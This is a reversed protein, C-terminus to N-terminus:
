NGSTKSSGTLDILVESGPEVEFSSIVDETGDQENLGARNHVLSLTGGLAREVVIEDPIDGGDPNLIIFLSNNLSRKQPSVGIDKRLVFTSLSNQRMNLPLRIRVRSYPRLVLPKTPDFSNLNDFYWGAEGWATITGEKPPAPLFLIGVSNTKLNINPSMLSEEIIADPEFRLARSRGPSQVQVYTDAAPKGDPGNVQIEMGKDHKLKTLHYNRQLRADVNSTVSEELPQYGDALIQLTMKDFGYNSSFTLVGDKSRDGFIRWAPITAPRSRLFTLEAELHGSVSREYRRKVFFDSIREGTEADVATCSFELTPYLTIEATASTQTDLIEWATRFGRHMAALLLTGSPANPWVVEGKDNTKESFRIAGSKNWSGLTITADAVPNGMHDTTRITVNKPPLLQIINKKDMSSANALTGAQGANDIAAVSIFRRPSGAHEFKGQADTVVVIRPPQAIDSEIFASVKAGAVPKSDPGLVVGRIKFADQLVIPLERQESVEIQQYLYGYKTLNLVSVRPTRWEFYGDENTTTESNVRDQESLESQWRGPYIRVGSIPNGRVDKVYGSLLVTDQTTKATPQAESAMLTETISSPLFAGCFAALSGIVAAFVLMSRVSSPARNQRADLVHRLRLKLETQQVASATSATLPCNERGVRIERAIAILHEAYSFVSSAQKSAIDDCALERLRTIREVAIWAMPNIWFAARLVFAITTWLIDCRSIHASEHQVVAMLKEAPWNATDKPLLIEPRVIGVVTPVRIDGSTRITISNQRSWEQLLSHSGVNGVPEGRSRILFARWHMNLVRYLLICVVAVYLNFLSFTQNINFAPNTQGEIANTSESNEALIVPAQHLATDSQGDLTTFSRAFDAHKSEYKRDTVPTFAQSLPKVAIPWKVDIRCVFPAACMAFLALLWLKCRLDASFRQPFVEAFIPIVFPVVLATVFKLAPLYTNVTEIWNM